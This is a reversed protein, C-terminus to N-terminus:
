EMNLDGEVNKAFRQKNTQANGDVGRFGKSGRLVIRKNSRGVGM